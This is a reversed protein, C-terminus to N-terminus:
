KNKYILKNLINKVERDSPMFFLAKEWAEKAGDLDHNAYLVHGLNYYSENLHYQDSNPYLSIATKYATIADDFNNTSRLEIGRIYYARPYNPFEKLCRDLLELYKTRDFFSYIIAERCLIEGTTGVVERAKELWRLAESLKRDEAACMCETIERFIPKCCFKYKKGSNCPCPSYADPIINLLDEKSEMEMYQPIEDEPIMHLSSTPSFFHQGFEQRVPSLLPESYPAPVLELEFHLQKSLQLLNEQAPDGYAIIIRKPPKAKNQATDILKSIQQASIIDEVIEQAVILTSPLDMILYIDVPKHQIQTDIRFILWAPKHNFDELQYPKM